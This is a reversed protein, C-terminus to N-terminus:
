FTQNFAKTFGKLDYRLMVHTDKDEFMLRNGRKMAQIIEEAIYIKTLGHTALKIPCVGKGKGDIYLILFTAEQDYNLVHMTWMMAPGKSISAIPKGSEKYVMERTGNTVLTAWEGANSFSILLLLILIMKKM